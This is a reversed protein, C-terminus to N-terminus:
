ELDFTIFQKSYIKSAMVQPDMGDFIEEEDGVIVV